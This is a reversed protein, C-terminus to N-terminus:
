VLFTMIKDFNKPHAILYNPNNFDFTTEGINAIRAGAEAFLVARPAFDWPGGGHDLSILGDISGRMVLSLDHTISYGLISPRLAVLRRVNEPNRLDVGLELWARSLPRYQMTVKQGNCFAGKGDHAVYMEDKAFVYMLAWVPRGGDILTVLNKSTFLGRIFSETGDIPDVLWYTEQSGEAGLEEGIIGIGSDIKRLLDRIDAEVERDLTTVVTQDDKFEYVLNGQAALLKPRWSKLLHTLGAEAKTILSGSVM